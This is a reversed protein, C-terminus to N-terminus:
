KKNSKNKKEHEPAWRHRCTGVCEEGVRREESRAEAISGKGAGTVVAIDDTYTEPQPDEAAHAIQAYIRAHVQHGNALAKGQWWTAQRCVTEGAGVFLDSSCVDSSWDSIRM